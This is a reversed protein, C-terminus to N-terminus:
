LQGEDLMSHKRGCDTVIIHDVVPMGLLKGTDVLIRTMAHDEPSPEPSGSPHNHGLIIAHAGAVIAPRFIEPASVAISHRGGLAVVSGGILRNQGDLYLVVFREVMPDDDCSLARIAGAADDPGALKIQSRERVMRIRLRPIKYQATM